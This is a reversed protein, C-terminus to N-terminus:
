ENLTIAFSAMNRFKSLELVVITNDVYRLHLVM